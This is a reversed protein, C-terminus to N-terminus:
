TCFNHTGLGDLETLTSAQGIVQYLQHESHKLNLLEVFTIVNRKYQNELSLAVAGGLSHGIVTDIEHHIKYYADSDQGRKNENLTDNMPLKLDDIHDIPSNRTGAVLLKNYHQYPGDKAGYANKM